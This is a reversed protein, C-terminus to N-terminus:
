AAAFAETLFAVIEARAQSAARGLGPMSLFGHPVGLYETYRVPVGASRLAQAYRSGDDIL